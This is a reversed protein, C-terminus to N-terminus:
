GFMMQLQSFVESHNLQLNHAMIQIRGHQRHLRHQAIRTAITQVVMATITWTVHNVRLLQVETCSFM